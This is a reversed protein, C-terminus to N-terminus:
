EALYTNVKSKVAAVAQREDAEGRLFPEVEEIILNNLIYNTEIPVSVDMAINLIAERENKAPWEATLMNGETDSVALSLNSEEKEIWGKISKSNVPFGDYVNADQVKSTFLFGIFKKALEGERSKSNLGVAGGPIFMRNVSNYGFDEDQLVAFLLMTDYINKIQLTTQAYGKQLATVNGQFLSGTNFFREAGKSTKFNEEKYEIAKINEAIQKLNRLFTTFSEEDLEGNQFLDGAYLALYGELLEHYAMPEGYPKNDTRNIYNVISNLSDAAQVADTKGAIVPVSFRIPMEYVKGDKKYPKTLNELLEGSEELPSIVDNIDALVGKEIYSDVPLGDLVLIDAGNGALLETNLARIYDNVNSDEEGMAVVYNVKVDPNESQFLSISQRITNNEKLSYVTIEKSPVSAVNEDFVYHMLQYGGDSEGYVAYYEEQEGERVFLATFSLTPMSMSNLSGDVLTEWLTGDKQLRHIGNSNGLLLTGDEKIAYAIAGSNINFDINREANKSVANYFVIGKGDENAAIINNGYTIYDPEQGIRLKDVAEGSPSFVSLSGTDWLDYLVVSGDELVQIKEISPYHKYDNTSTEEKLYPIEVPEAAKGGEVSKILTCKVNNDSYDTYVAYYNGDNGLCLDKLMKNEKLLIENNLWEPSSSEWTMDDQLRYCIYKDTSITYVEIQKDANELIKLIIENGQLEPLKLKEEMYRGMTSKESKDGNEGNGADQGAATNNLQGTEQNKRERDCGPLSTIVILLVVLIATIKKRM